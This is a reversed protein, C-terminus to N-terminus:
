AGVMLAIRHMSNNLYGKPNWAVAFPQMVGAEDTARAWVEYYGPQPFEIDTTWHQWAFPNAPEQLEAGQWSAGFDVSVDVASVKRDGAWAHGRVVTRGPIQSNTAPHTIISKVPMSQIIVFDEMPVEAGPAVPYRPVRYSDGGMKEGDHVQDRVQVRTLWKQSCSGPWGPIVLRVPAGNQPHIPGGNMEFAILNHPDMAKEIPVGRSIPMKDPDGSLHTDAGYHGTYV